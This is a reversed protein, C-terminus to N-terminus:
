CEKRNKFPLSIILCNIKMYYIKTLKFTRIVLDDADIPVSREKLENLLPSVSLNEEVLNEAVENELNHKKM